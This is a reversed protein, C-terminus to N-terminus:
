DRNTILKKGVSDAKDLGREYVVNFGLSPSLSAANHATM